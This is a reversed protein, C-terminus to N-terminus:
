LKVGFASQLRASVDGPYVFSVDIMDVLMQGATHGDYGVISLPPNDLFAELVAKMRAITQELGDAQVVVAFLLPHKSGVHREMDRVVGVYPRLAEMGARLALEVGEDLRTTNRVSVTFSVVHSGVLARGLSDWAAPSRVPIYAEVRNVAIDADQRPAFGPLLPLM